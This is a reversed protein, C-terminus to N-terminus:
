IRRLIKKTLMSITFEILCYRYMSTWRSLYITNPASALCKERFEGLVTLLKGTGKAYGHFQRLLAPWNGIAATIHKRETPTAEYGLEHLWTRLVIDDWPGLRIANVGRGRLTESAALDPGVEASLRMTTAPSALFLFRVPNRYQALKEFAHLVWRM